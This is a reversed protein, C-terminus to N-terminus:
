QLRAASVQLGPDPLSLCVSVCLPLSVSLCVQLGPDPLAVDGRRGLEAQLETREDFKEALRRRPRVAAAAAALDACARVHKRAHKTPRARPLSRAGRGHRNKHGLSGALDACGRVHKQSTNQLPSAASPWAPTAPAARM